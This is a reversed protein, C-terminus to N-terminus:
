LRVERLADFAESVVETLPRRGGEGVWTEIALRGVNITVTAVLRLTIPSEAPWRERLAAFLTQEDHMYSAHKRAQVAESSRMLRDIALMEEPAYPAIVSLFARRAADLPRADPPQEDLAAVVREGMGRQLSLLIDDKSKFYHFFTRRSIGAEIAIEDVTTADYGRAGFLKIGAETIRHLTEQRKRERTGQVGSGKRRTM